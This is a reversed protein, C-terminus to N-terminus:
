GRPVGIIAVKGPPATELERIAKPVDDFAMLRPEPVHLRGDEVLGILQDYAARRRDPIEDWSGGLALLGTASYERLLMDFADLPAPSGSAFGIIAFRGFRAISQLARRALDGGVPDFIVDAGRGDTIESIRGAIDETAHNLVHDAGLEACYALKEASGAVAIVRADLAKGLLVAASGSNGAAGLVVLTEGSSLASRDVLAAHATRFGIVFGAAQEDTLRSPILRTEEAVLYAYEALGGLRDTLLATLGMVRDGVSFPSNRPAAVVEGAAELGLVAPPEKIAPHQGRTALLDPLSLGSATVRVLLLGEIPRPWTLERRVLVDEVEGFAELQWALGKFM